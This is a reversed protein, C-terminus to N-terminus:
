VTGLIFKIINNLGQHEEGEAVRIFIVDNILDKITQERKLDSVLNNSKRHHKEDYEIALSLEACFLDLRYKGIRYQEEFHAIGDLSEKVLKCFVQEKVPLVKVTDLDVGIDNCLELLATSAEYERAKIGLTYVFNLDYHLKKRKIIREGELQAVQFKKISDPKSAEIVKVHESITKISKNFISSMQAQSFWITQSEMIFNEDTGDLKVNRL